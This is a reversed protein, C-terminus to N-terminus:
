ACAAVRERVHGAGGRGRRHWDAWLIVWRRTRLSADGLPMLLNVQEIAALRGMRQFWSPASQGSVGRAIRVVDIIPFRELEAPPSLLVSELSLEGSRLAAKVDKIAMRKQNASELASMYQATSM